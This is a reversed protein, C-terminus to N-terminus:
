QLNFLLPTGMVIVGMYYWPFASLLLIIASSYSIEDWKYYRKCIATLIFQYLTSLVLLFFVIVNHWVVTLTWSTDNAFHTQINYLCVLGICIINSFLTSFKRLAYSTRSLVLMVFAGLLTLSTIIWLALMYAGGIRAIKSDLYFRQIGGHFAWQRIPTGDRTGAGELDMYNGTQKNDIFCTGEELAGVKIAVTLSGGQWTATLYTRGQSVGTM